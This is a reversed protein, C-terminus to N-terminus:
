YDTGRKGPIRANRWNDVTVSSTYGCNTVSLGRPTWIGIGRQNLFTKLSSAALGRGTELPAPISLAVGRISGGETSRGAKPSGSGRILTTMAATPVRRTTYSLKARDLRAPDLMWAAIM